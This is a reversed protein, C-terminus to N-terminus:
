NSSPRTCKDRVRAHRYPHPGGDAYPRPRRLSIARAVDGLPWSDNGGLNHMAAVGADWGFCYALDDDRGPQFLALAREFHDRAELYDGAFWSAVGATRHAVCAEPSDPRAGVDSLFAAAHAQM